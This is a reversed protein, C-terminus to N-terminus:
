TYKVIDDYHIYKVVSMEKSMQVGKYTHIYLQENTKKYFEVSKSIYAGHNGWIFAYFSAYDKYKERPLFTLIGDSESIHEKPTVIQVEFKYGDYWEPGAKTVNVSVSRVYYYVSIYKTHIDTGLRCFSETSDPGVIYGDCFGVIPLWM